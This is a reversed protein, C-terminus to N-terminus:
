VARFRIPLSPFRRIGAFPVWQPDPDVLTPEELRQALALLGEQAELRGLANGVCYHRGLGFALHRKDERAIDFRDPNPYQHEDRHSSLLSFFVIQGEELSMGARVFPERVKRIVGTVPSEYRLIEELIPEVRSADRQLARYADPHDILTKVGITLLSKTTDHGAFLLALIMAKLEEENLRDGAEEAEILATLLDDAPARKKIEILDDAYERLSVIADEVEKRIEPTIVVHFAGSLAATWEAFTKYDSEPVGLMTAIVRIPVHHAFDALFDFEGRPTLEDLLEACIAQTVPRMRQVRRPTFAKSVLSRLRTHVPEDNFLITNSWWRHLPGDVIGQVELSATLPSGLRDDRLLAEVDEFRSYCPILFPTARYVRSQRRVVQLVEHTHQWYAPQMIDVVPLGDQQSILHEIEGSL